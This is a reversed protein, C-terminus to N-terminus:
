LPNKGHRNEKHNDFNLRSEMKKLLLVLKEEIISYPLKKNHLYIIAMGLTRLNSDKVRNKLPIRNLRYAERIRRRMAVRDVARKLKKKPITVLMQLSGVADPVGNRFMSELQENDLAKWSIRLPFEYLTSGEKFISEVLSRHRLKEEKRLTLRTHPMTDDGIATHRHDHLTDDTM